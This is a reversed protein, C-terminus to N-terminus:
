KSATTAAGKEKIPTGERLLGVGEAVIKEGVSLGSEVIYDKGGTVSTVEVIRSKAKGDVITYVFKKDQLEFTMSQPIVVVNDRHTPIIVNGTAGSHLLGNPNTFDARVSVSGTSRDIVGSMSAVKGKQTYTSGDSLRLTVEPFAALAKERSGSERIMALLDNEPISFYVEMTSNDSVTTLPQTISASVLSGVRYPLTGIVGAAPAKVTTYSLNNKANVLQAEAEALQAQAMTMSNRATSLDFESVVQAEFLKEKSEYTLTSTALSAQATAVYAEATALAARYPVQDIVFMVQGKVVRDGEKVRLETLTGSVQPYISIDQRGRITASALKSLECNSKAITLMEYEGVVATRVQTQQCGTVALALLAGFILHSIQKPKTLM